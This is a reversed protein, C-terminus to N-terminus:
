MFGAKQLILIDETSLAEGNKFKEFIADATKKLESEREQKKSTRQKQRLGTIIKEFDRLEEIMNNLIKEEEREKQSFNIFNQHAEDSEKKSESAKEFLEVSKDHFEQSKTVAEELQSQIDDLKMKAVSIDAKKQMYEQNKRMAEEEEKKMKEIQLHLAHIEEVLVKEKDSSLVSTEQRHELDKIKKRFQSINGEGFRNSYRKKIEKLENYGKQLKERWEERSAKLQKVKDNLLDRQERYEKAEKFLDKTKKNLEDRVSAKNLAESEYSNQQVKHVDLDKKLKEYKAEIEELLDAM